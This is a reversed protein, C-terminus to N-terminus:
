DTPYFFNVGFPIDMEESEGSLDSTFTYTLDVDPSIEKVHNRFARSDRALFSNIIWKNITGSDSNGDVETIM